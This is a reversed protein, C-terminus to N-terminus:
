ERKDFVDKSTVKIYGESRPRIGIPVLSFINEGAPAREEGHHLYCIPAGIIEIDPKIAKAAVAIGAALGGGGIPVVLVELDPFDDLFELGVTGQGSIIKEDDYPHIFSQGQRDAQELAADRAEALGEGSLVVKAGLAETRGVKTFPTSEPMYITAPVGLQRAHYAVGQAHNGASAAVVGSKKEKESLGSLKIYAGRPKFSGDAGLPSIEPIPNELSSISFANPM